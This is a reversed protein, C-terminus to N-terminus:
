RHMEWPISVTLANMGDHTTGLTTEVGYPPPFWITADLVNLAHIGALACLGVIQYRRMTRTEDWKRVMGSRANDYAPQDLGDPLSLYATKADHYDERARRGLEIAYGTGGAVALEALLYLVGRGSRGSYFHGLGPFLLSRVVAGSKRKRPLAIRADTPSNYM